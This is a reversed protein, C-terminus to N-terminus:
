VKYVSNKGKSIEGVSFLLKESVVYLDIFNKDSNRRLQVLPFHNAHQEEWM